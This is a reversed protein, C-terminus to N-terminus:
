YLEFTNLRLEAIWKKLYVHDIGPNDILLNRIDNSQNESYLQQIWILKAVILDEVSIIWCDSDWIQGPRKRSFESQQFPTEKKVIFDIKFGSTQSIVNFIGRRRVEEDISPRHFYFKAPDAFLEAFSDLQSESLEIVLDIDRTFRAVTYAGMAVSGSVMYAIGRSELERCVYRLLEEM